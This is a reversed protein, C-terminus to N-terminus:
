PYGARGTTDVFPAPKTETFDRSIRVAHTKEATPM